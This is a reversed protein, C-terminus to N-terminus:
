NESFFGMVLDSLTDEDLDSCPDEEPLMQEEGQIEETVSSPAETYTEDPQEPIDGRPQLAKNDSPNYYSHDGLIICQWKGSITITEGSHNKLFELIAQVVFNVAAGKPLSDLVSFAMDHSPNIGEPKFGLTKRRGKQPECM